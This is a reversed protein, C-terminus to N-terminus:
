FPFDPLSDLYRREISTGLIRLPNELGVQWLEEDSLFGLSKLFRMCQAMNLGSGVFYCSHLNEIRGEPTLRVQNGLTDYIGPAFGAIPASDSVIFIKDVGKCKFVVRIFDGPLHHGDAILGAALRDNALQAIIINDHRPLQAPCGNGLHTCLSAGAETARRLVDRSALHHGLAIRTTSSRCAEAIFDTAGELEPALTLLAIHGQAWDQFECFERWNPPHMHKVDHAGRAGEASSLYPGELHIGLLRGKVGDQEMAKALLPLNRRYIQADSTIVTACYGITGDKLLDDTVRHIDELHLTPSAFDVGQYGNVQLDVFGKRMLIM